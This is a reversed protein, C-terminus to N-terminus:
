AEYLDLFCTMDACAFGPLNFRLGGHPWLSLEQWMIGMLAVYRQWARLIFSTTTFALVVQTKIQMQLHVRISM